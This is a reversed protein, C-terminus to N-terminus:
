YPAQRCVPPESLNLEELPTKVPHPWICLHGKKEELYMPFIKKEFKLYNKSYKTGTYLTKQDYGGWGCGGFEEVLTVDGM